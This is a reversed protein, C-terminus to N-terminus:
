AAGGTRDGAAVVGTAADLLRARADADSGRRGFRVGDIQRLFGRLRERGEAGLVSEARPHALLDESTSEPAGLAFRECLYDRVAFVAESHFAQEAVRDAPRAGRLAALRALARESPSPGAAEAPAAAEEPVTPVAGRAGGRRRLLVVTLLAVLAVGAALTLPRRSSTGLPGGPLEPRGDDDAPLSSRVRLVVPESSVARVGGEGRTSLVVRPLTVEGPDFAYARFRLTEEVREADTRREVGDPRLLLSPLAADDWPDPERDGRWRRTVTLPFAVGSEVEGSGAEVRIAPVRRDIPGGDGCAALLALALGAAAAAGVLRGTM